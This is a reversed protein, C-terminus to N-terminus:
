SESPPATEASITQRQEPLERRTRVPSLFVPIFATAVFVGGVWLTAQVGILEGLVGSIAAGIALAGTLLFRFTANMRGLLSDATMRQRLSVGLVNDMGVKFMALFWGAGAIVLWVGRDVLPVLLGAPALCLGAIGLTRGFGLRAAIPRASRAGILLGVGGAAWFLGLAGGSLGLERVFWIPLMTNIVSSGLNGLAATLALARLERNGLVHRVGEGIQTWLRTRTGAPPAAPAPTRRLFLLTLGSALHTGASFFVAAPATLLSVLGGGASRGGVNGVAILTNIDANARVLSDRAVLQPLVSQSGVDFFVTACGNLLVVAYLQGLTLSDLWYAVPVTLQLMARVLDAVILVRRHSLRDVWAGAPLGIVLFAVTSLTALAGVQGPGADLATVAVLPIAVYSINAGLQSLASATFLTRFDPIRWPSNPQM